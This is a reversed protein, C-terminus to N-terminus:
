KCRNAIAAILFTHIWVDGDRHVSSGVLHDPVGDDHRPPQPCALWVQSGGESTRPPHSKEQIEASM